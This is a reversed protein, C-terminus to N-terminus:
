GSSSSSCRRAPQVSLRLAVPAWRNGLRAAAEVEEVACWGGRAERAQVLRKAIGPGIGPLLEFDAAAAANAELVDDYLTWTGPPRADGSRDRAPVVGIPKAPVLLSLASAAIAVWVTQLRTWSFGGPAHPAWMPEHLLM